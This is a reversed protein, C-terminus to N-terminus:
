HTYDFLIHECISQGSLHLPSAIEPLMHKMYFDVLRPFIKTNWWFNDDVNIREVTIPTYSPPSLPIGLPTWVVFDCWLRCTFHLQGQIQYYYDHSTKLHFKGDNYKLLFNPKGCLEEPSTSEASAPCKVELLGHPDNISSPDNVIGDTISRDLQTNM